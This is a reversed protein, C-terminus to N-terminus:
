SRGRTCWPRGPRFRTTDPTGPRPVAAFMPIVALTGPHALLHVTVARYFGVIATDLGTQYLHLLATRHGSDTLADLQTLSTGYVFDDTQAAPRPRSVESNRLWAGDVVPDMDTHRISLLAVHLEIDASAPATDALPLCRLPFPYSAASGDRYAITADIRTDPTGAVYDRM